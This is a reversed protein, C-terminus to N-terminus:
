HRDLHDALGRWGLRARSGGGSSVIDTCGLPLMGCVRRLRLGGAQKQSTIRRLYGNSIGAVFAEIGFGALLVGYVIPGSKLQDRVVLPLLALIAISALGFLTARAIAARIELSMVTFRM